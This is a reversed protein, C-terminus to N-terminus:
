KFREHDYITKDLMKKAKEYDPKMRLAEKLWYEAEDYKGVYYYTNGLNFRFVPSSEINDTIVSKEFAQIARNYNGKAFHITGLQSYLRPSYPNYSIEKEYFREPDTWDSNRYVTRVSLVIAILVMICAYIARAQKTKLTEWFSAIGFAIAILPLYLWREAYLTNAIILIGSVPILPIFFWVFAFFFKKNKLFSNYALACGGIIFSAGFIGRMQFLEAVPLYVKEFFLDKPFAILKAYEWLISVFTIIRVSIKETYESVLTTLHMSGSFNLVTFKLIIYILVIMTFTSAWICKEGKTKKDYSKWDYMVILWAFAFFTIAIEKSLLALVCTILAAFNKGSKFLLLGSLIFFPALVDPLGSIYTVAEVQVPHVLFILAALLSGYRPLNFKKLLTFVLFSNAIHLIINLVRFAFPTEGFVSYISAFILKVLPRYLDGPSAIFENNTSGTAFWEKVNGFSKIQENNIILSFDDWIFPASLANMYILTGVLFLLGFVALDNDLIKKFKEITNRM